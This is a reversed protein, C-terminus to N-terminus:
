RSGQCHTRGGLMWSLPTWIGDEFATDTVEVESSEILNLKSMEHTARIRANISAFSQSPEDGRSLTVFGLQNEASKEEIM